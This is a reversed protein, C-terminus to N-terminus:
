AVRVLLDQGHSKRRHSKRLVFKLCVAVCIVASAIYLLVCLSIDFINFDKSIKKPSVEEFSEPKTQSRDNVKNPIFLKTGTGMKNLNEISYVSILYSLVKPEHWSGNPHRCNPCKEASPYQIKPFEPDESGDKALRNNVENHAAWLWLVAEEGTKVKTEMSRNRSMQQFHQSCETCGFFYTIYGLMADLVELPDFHTQDSDRLANVTLYHFLTWVGCPYKRYYDESGKCGLWQERTAMVSQLGGHSLNNIYTKFKAGMIDDDILVRDRLKQLFLAGEEGTPFYKALVGLVANLAKFPDGSINRRSVIEHELIYKLTLELDVLFVVDGLEKIKTLLIFDNRAKQLDQISPVLNLSNLDVAKPEEPLHVGKSQLYSRITSRISERSYEKPDLFEPKNDGAELVLVRPFTTVGFLTALVENEPVVRRITIGKVNSLDLIVETGLSDNGDAFILFVFQINEVGKWLNSTDSSRYPMLNPWEAGRGEMQEKQLVGVLDRTITRESQSTRPLETGLSSSPSYASFFKITPYALINYDRCIPNNDDDFCDIAAIQVINKWEYLNAALTKWIPSFKLCHGCWSNYFEVLWANKTNYLTTKFNTANLIVVRDSEMYLGKGVVINHKMKQVGPTLASECFYALLVAFNLQLLYSVKM